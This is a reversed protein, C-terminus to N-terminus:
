EGDKVVGGAAEIAAKVDSVLYVEGDPVGVLEIEYNGGMRPEYTEPLVVPNQPATFLSCLDGNHNKADWEAQSKCKSAYFLDGADRRVVYAYPVQDVKLADFEKRAIIGELVGVSAEAKEARHTNSYASERWSDRLQKLEDARQREAELQDLARKLKAPDVKPWTMYDSSEGIESAERLAAIDTTDTM